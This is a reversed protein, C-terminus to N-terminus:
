NNQLTEIATELVLDQDGTISESADIAIEPFIGVDELVTKDAKYAVWSSIKYKTGDELNYEKPNGSSGRTTDGVTTIHDLTSMMLIFAENSSMCAEGILLIVPKTYQWSGYPSFRAAQLSTFDDHDPGNRSKRYAYTNTNATFRGAVYRALLENGGGNPRVDIIIGLYNEFTSKNNDFIQQFEDVDAESSWSSILIYGINNHIAGIKFMGGATNTINTLYKNFFSNNYQYNIEPPRRYLTIQNNNNDTLSVHLDRLETLMEKIVNNIFYDYTITNQVLPEYVTKISDWNIKKHIFYSYNQDYDNWVKEFSAKYNANVPEAPEKECGFVCLIIILLLLIRKKSMRVVM